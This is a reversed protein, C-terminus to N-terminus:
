FLEFLYVPACVVVAHANGVHNRAARTLARAFADGPARARVRTAAGRAGSIFHSVDGVRGSWRVCASVGGWTDRCVLRLREHEHLLARWRM